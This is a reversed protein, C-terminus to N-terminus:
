VPLPDGVLDDAFHTNDILRLHPANKDKGKKGILPHPATKEFLKRQAMIQQHLEESQALATMEMASLGLNNPDTLSIAEVDNEEFWTAYYIMGILCSLDHFLNAIRTGLRRWAATEAGEMLAARALAHIFDNGFDAMNPAGSKDSNIWKKLSARNDDMMEAAPDLHMPLWAVDELRNNIIALGLREARLYAFGYGERSLTTHLPYLALIDNKELSLRDKASALLAKLRPITVYRSAM